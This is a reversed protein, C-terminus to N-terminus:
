ANGADIAQQDRWTPESGWSRPFLDHPHVETDPDHETIRPYNDDSVPDTFRYGTHELAAELEDDTPQHPHHGM